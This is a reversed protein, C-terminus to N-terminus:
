FLSKTERTIKLKEMDPEKSHILAYTFDSNYLIEKVKDFDSEAIKIKKAWPATKQLYDWEKNLLNLSPETIIARSGKGFEMVEFKRNIFHPRFHNFPLKAFNFNLFHHEIISLVSKLEDFFLAPIPIREYFRNSLLFSTEFLSKKVVKIEVPKVRSAPEIQLTKFLSEKGLFLDAKDLNALMNEIEDEFLAREDDVLYRCLDFETEDLLFLPIKKEILLYRFLRYLAEDISKVRIWAIEPDEIEIWGEYLIGYAGRQIAKKVDKKNKAIFLDGRKIKSPNSSVGGLRTIAPSSKLEGNLIYLYNEIRM